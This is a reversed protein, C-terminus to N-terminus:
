NCLYYSELRSETVQCHDGPCTFPNQMYDSLEARMYGGVLPVGHDLPKSPHNFQNVASWAVPRDSDIILHCIKDLGGTYAIKILGNKKKLVVFIVWTTATVPIPM